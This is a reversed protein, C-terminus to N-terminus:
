GVCQQREMERQNGEKESLAYLRKMACEGLVKTGNWKEGIAKKKQYHVYESRQTDVCNRLSPYGQHVQPVFTNAQNKRLSEVRAANRIM